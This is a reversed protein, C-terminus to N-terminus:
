RRVEVQMMGGKYLGLYLHLGRQSQVMVMSRVGGFLNSDGPYQLKRWSQGADDSWELILPQPLASKKWGATYLRSPRTPDFAVDFYFRHDVNGLLNQWNIGQNQSMVIGGEGCAYIRNGDFRLSYFVSPNPLLDRYVQQDGDSLRHRYLVGDEIAGQGGWWIASRDPSLALAAKPQGILGWSGQLAQWRIGLNDSYALAGIGTGYLRQQIKDYSMAYLGEYVGNAGFPRQVEQWSGGANFTEHMQHLEIGGTDILSAAALWHQDDIFALDRVQTGQLGLATWSGTQEQYLGDTTLALVRGQQHYIRVVILGALGQHSFIFQEAGPGGVTIRCALLGLMLTMSLLFRCILM